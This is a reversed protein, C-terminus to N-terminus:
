DLQRIGQVISYLEVKKLLKMENSWAISRM